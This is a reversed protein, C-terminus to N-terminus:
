VCKGLKKGGEKESLVQVIKYQQLRLLRNTQCKISFRKGGFEGRKLGTINLM